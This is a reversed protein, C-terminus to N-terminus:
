DPYQPLSVVASIPGNLFPLLATIDIAVGILTIAVLAADASAFFGSQLEGSKFLGLGRIYM